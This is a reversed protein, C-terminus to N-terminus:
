NKSQIQEFGNRPASCPITFHFTSGKNLASEVWIEGGHLEVLAKAIALGLGIGNHRRKLPEGPQYFREFIYREEGAVIGIGQDSVSVNVLKQDVQAAFIIKGGSSSFMIANSLLNSFILSVLERDAEIIIDSCIKNEISLSKQVTDHKEIQIVNEVLDSLRFRRPFVRIQRLDIQHLVVISDVLRKLNAAQAAIASTTENAGVLAREELLSAYGLLITVPTRLESAVLATFNRKLQDLRFLKEQARELEKRLALNERELNTSSAM